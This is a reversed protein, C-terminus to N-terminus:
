GARCSVLWGFSGFASGHPAIWRVPWCVRHREDFGVRGARGGGGLGHRGRV